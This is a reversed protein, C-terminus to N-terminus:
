RQPISFQFNLRSIKSMPDIKADDSSKPKNIDRNNM